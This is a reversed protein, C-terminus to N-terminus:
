HARRQLVVIALAVGLGAVIPGMVSGTTSDTTTEGELYGLGQATWLSGLLVMLLALALGVVKGRTM